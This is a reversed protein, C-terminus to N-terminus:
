NCFEIYFNLEFFHIDLIDSNILCNFFNSPHDTKLAKKLEEFIRENKLYKIEDKLKSM